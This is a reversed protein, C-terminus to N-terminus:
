AAGKKKGREAVVETAEITVWVGPRIDHGQWVRVASGISFIKDNVGLGAAIGDNLAKLINDVDGRQSQWRVSITVARLRECLPFGAAIAEYTVTEQVFAKWERTKRTLCMGRRTRQYMANVSVATGPLWITLTTAM